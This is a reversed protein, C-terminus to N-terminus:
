RDERIDLLRWDNACAVSKAVEMARKKTQTKVINQELVPGIEGAKEARRYFNLVFTRKPKADTRIERMMSDWKTQPIWEM